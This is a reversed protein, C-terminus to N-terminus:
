RDRSANSTIACGVAASQLLVVALVQRTEFAVLIACLGLTLIRISEVRVAHSQFCMAMLLMGTTVFIPVTVSTLPLVSSIQARELLTQLRAYLGNNLRLMSSDTKGLTSQKIGDEQSARLHGCGTSDM